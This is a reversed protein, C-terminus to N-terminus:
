GETKLRFVFGAQRVKRMRTDPDRLVAAETLQLAVWGPGFGLVQGVVDASHGGFRFREFLPADTVGPVDAAREVVELCCLDVAVSGDEFEVLAYPETFEDVIPVLTVRGVSDLRGRLAPTEHVVRVVDGVLPVEPAWWAAFNARCELTQQVLETGEGEGLVWVGARFEDSDQVVAPVEVYGGGIPSGDVRVVVRVGKGPWGVVWAPDFSRWEPEAPLHYDRAPGITVAALRDLYINV